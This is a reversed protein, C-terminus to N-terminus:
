YTVEGQGRLRYQYYSFTFVILFLIFAMAAGAGMNGHQFAEQYILVVIVTTSYYPGGNAFAIAIGFVQFSGIIALVIVFFYTNQLNPWTVHRFRQWQSTGDIRAAEYLEEPINQLGALFIIMNFGIGGWVAILIVAFLATGPDGAWNHNIGIPALFSNIIGDVSLIWRWIVASVAGSLLIPMFFATRYFKRFRIRKDLVLAVCLGGLIGLPVTGIVYTLTNKVAYWWLNVTPNSLVAWGDAWPLPFLVSAYNDLGVWVSEGTLVNWEVFSLYFAYVVPGFLFVSFVVVNPLIFLFGALNDSNGARERLRQSIQSNFYETFDEKRFSM